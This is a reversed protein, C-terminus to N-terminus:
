STMRGLRVATQGQWLRRSPMILVCDDYPTVVPQDGDHGIITGAKQLIDMGTFDEAFTFSESKVTVPETVKIVHQEDPLSCHELFDSGVNPEIVDLAHLFRLTVEISRPGTDAEWHQGAEYLLANRQSDPDGLGEFDRMRKGAVHGADTVIHVPTGIKRAFIRGKELPGAMMLSPQQRQMSHLDLLFDVTEIWPRVERARSLERSQRDGDLTSLDWLRNFDEDLFRTANPNEPDFAQYALVNMFGLSLKGKTPRVNEKFLWDLAVAGCPENGHVIASIMVHPGAKGSDFCTIWDIGTNGARYPEIDPFDIEIPYEAPPM